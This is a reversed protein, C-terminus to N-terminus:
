LDKRSSFGFGKFERGRRGGECFVKVEISLM